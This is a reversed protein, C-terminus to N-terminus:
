ELGVRPPSSALEVFEVPVSTEFDFSLRVSGRPADPGASRLDRELARRRHLSVRGAGAIGSLNDAAITAAGVEDAFSCRLVVPGEAAVRVEFLVLDEPRTADPDVRWTLDLPARTSVAGVRNLPEGGLTVDTLEVPAHGDLRFAPLNVGGAVRVEYRAGSPLASASRDRSTYVVGSAFRSISPFARPALSIAEGGWASITVEGVDLLRVEDIGAFSTSASAGFAEPARECTGVEPATAVLGTAALLETSTGDSRAFHAMADAAEIGDTSTRSVVVRADIVPGDPALVPSSVGVDNSAPSNSQLEPETGADSCAAFVFVGVSPVLVRALALPLAPILSVM